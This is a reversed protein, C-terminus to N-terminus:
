DPKIKIEVDTTKIKFKDLTVLNQPKFRTKDEDGAREYIHTFDSLKDRSIGAGILVEKIDDRGLIKDESSMKQDEVIQTLNEQINKIVEIDAKDDTVEAIINEFINQQKVSSVPPEIGTLAEMLDRPEEEPKKTFFLMAGDDSQRDNFAPYM